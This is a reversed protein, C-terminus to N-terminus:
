CKSALLCGSHIRQMRMRPTTNHPQMFARTRNSLFILFFFNYVGMTFENSLPFIFLNSVSSTKIILNINSSSTIVKILISGNGSQWSCLKTHPLDSYNAFLPVPSSFLAGVQVVVLSATLVRRSKKLWIVEFFNDKHEHSFRGNSPAKKKM